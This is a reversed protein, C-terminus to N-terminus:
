RSVAWSVGAGTRRLRGVGSIHTAVIMADEALAAKSLAKRSALTAARGSWHVMLAPREAEVVLHFLDGVCYLTQGNSRVRVIPHGPTEGPAPLVAAGEAM